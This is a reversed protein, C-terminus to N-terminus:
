GKIFGREENLTLIHGTKKYIQDARHSLVVNVASALNLCHKTPIQIFRHCHQLISRDLSGNEPGFIYMPNDPHVFDFLMEANERVEVAVPTYGQEIIEKFRETKILKVDRYGKMREERPMRYGAVEEDEKWLNPHPVKSGSWILTDIGWCSCGRIANGVNHPFQPNFLAVATRM